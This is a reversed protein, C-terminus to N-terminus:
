MQWEGSVGKQLTTKGKKFKQNAERGRGTGKRRDESTWDKRPDGPIGIGRQM